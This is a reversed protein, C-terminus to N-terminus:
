FGRGFSAATLDIKESYGTLEVYGHGTIPHQRQGQQSGQVRVAGEWYRILTHMEQNAMHPTITLDIDRSPIRLRWKAPYVAGPRPSRWTELVEIQVMDSALPQTTGDSEILTGRSFDNSGGQAQRLQYFMLEQGTSLQLAFWDWGVLTDGLVSTSWERDMWSLGQVQFEEAGVRIVGSAQLRTLSYYYSANGEGRGKQSLGDDGQLVVPKDSNLTLDLWVDDQGARLRMPLATATQGEVSWDELWVRFPMASAGALELAARSLRQFTYFQQPAVDSLAFHAMYVQSTSWASARSDRSARGAEKPNSEPSLATRFFTLQFGFHRGSKTELNGTYYWWETRYAPHQGHDDPFTFERPRDARAFGTTDGGLAQALSMSPQVLWKEESSSFLYISASVVLFAVLSFSLFIHLSRKPTITM